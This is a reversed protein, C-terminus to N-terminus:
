RVKDKFAQVDELRRDFHLELRSKGLRESLTSAREGKSSDNRCFQCSMAETAIM